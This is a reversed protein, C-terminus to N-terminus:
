RYLYLLILQHARISEKAMHVLEDDSGMVAEIGFNVLIQVM